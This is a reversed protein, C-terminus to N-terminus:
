RLRVSYIMLRQHNVCGGAERGGGPDVPPASLELGETVPNTGTAVLGWGGLTVDNAYVLGAQFTSATFLLPAGIVETVRSIGLGQSIQALFWPCLGCM